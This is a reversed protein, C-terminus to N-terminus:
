RIETAENVVLITANWIENYDHIQLKFFGNGQRDVSQIHYNNHAIWDM